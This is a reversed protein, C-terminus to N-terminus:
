NTGGVFGLTAMTTSAKEIVDESLAQSSSAQLVAPPHDCLSRVRYCRRQIESAAM